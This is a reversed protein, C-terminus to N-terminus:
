YIANNYTFINNESNRKKQIELLIFDFNLYESVNNLRIRQNDILAYEKFSKFSQSLYSYQKKHSLKLVNHTIYAHIRETINQSQIKRRTFNRYETKSITGKIWSKKIFLSINNKELTQRKDITIYENKDNDTFMLTNQKTANHKNEISQKYINLQEKLLTIKINQLQEVFSYLYIIQESLSNLINQETNNTNNEKIFTYCEISNDLLENNESISKNFNQITINLDSDMFSFILKDTNM